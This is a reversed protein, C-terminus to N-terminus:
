VRFIFRVSGASPLSTRTLSRWGYGWHVKLDKNEDALVTSVPSDKGLYCLIAWLTMCNGKQSLYSQSSLFYSYYHPSPEIPFADAKCTQPGTILDWSGTYLQAGYCMNTIGTTGSSTPAQPVGLRTYAAAFLLSGRDWVLFRVKDASRLVYVAVCAFRCDCTYVHSVYESMMYVCVCM